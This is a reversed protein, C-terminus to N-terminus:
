TGTAPVHRPLLELSRHAGVRGLYAECLVTGDATVVDLPRELAHPLVVVDGVRLSGIAGLTLEVAHLRAALVADTQAAAATLPTLPAWSTPLPAARPPDLRAVAPGSLYLAVMDLHPLAVRVGGAWARFAAAPLSGAAAGPDFGTGSGGDLMLASRLVTVFAALAERCFEAAISDPGVAAGSGYLWPGVLQEAHPVAGGEAVHECVLWAGAADLSPDAHLRLAMCPRCHPEAAWAAARAAGDGRAGASAPSWAHRWQDIARSVKDEILALASDNWHLLPEYATERRDQPNVNM